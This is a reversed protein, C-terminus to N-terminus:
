RVPQKKHPVVTLQPLIHLLLKDPQLRIDGINLSLSLAKDGADILMPSLNEIPLPLERNNFLLAITSAIETKSRDTSQLDTIVPRLYLTQTRADFRTTVECQFSMTLTGIKMRLQHGAVDTVINLEHGSLTARGSLKDQELQLKSIKDVSVSGLLGNSQLKFKQPLSRAVLEAVFTEPLTMTAPQRTLDAMSPTSTLLCLLLSIALIKLLNM